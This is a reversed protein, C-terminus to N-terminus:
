YDQMHEVPFAEPALRGNIAAGGPLPAYLEISIQSIPMPFGEIEPKDSPTITAMVMVPIGDAVHELPKNDDPNAGVMGVMRRHVPHNYWDRAAKADRFWAIIVNKGSQTQAAEAGLCGDVSKLGQMLMTAFGAGTNGAARPATPTSAPQAPAQTPPQTPAQSAPPTAPQTAPPQAIVVSVTTLGVVALVSAIAIATRSM